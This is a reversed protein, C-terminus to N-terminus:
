EDRIAQVFEVASRGGTADPMLGRLSRLTPLDVDPPHVEVEDVRVREPFPSDGRYTLLGTVTVSRKVAGNVVPFLHDPFVCQVGFGATPPYLTFEHRGHVNLREIRGKVTGLAQTEGSLIGDITSLYRTTLEVGALEVRRRGQFIPAALERFAKLDENRLRPDVRGGEELTRVTESFTEYVERGYDAKGRRPPAPQLEMVASSVQLDTILHRLSHQGTTREEVRRLCGELTDIYQRFDHLLVAGGDAVTGVLRLTLSPPGM